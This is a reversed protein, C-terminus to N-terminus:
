TLRTNSHKMKLIAGLLFGTNQDYRQITVDTQSATSVPRLLFIQDYNQFPDWPKIRRNQPTFMCFVLTKKQRITNKRVTNQDYFRQMLDYPRSVGALDFLLDLKISKILPPPWVLVLDPSFFCFVSRLFRLSQPAIRLICCLLHMVTFMHQSTQPRVTAQSHSRWQGAM